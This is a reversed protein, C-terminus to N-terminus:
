YNSERRGDRETLYDDLTKMEFDQEDEGGYWERLRREFLGNCLVMANRRHRMQRIADSIRMARHRHLYTAVALGARNLGAHCHWYTPEHAAHTHVADVFGELLRREPMHDPDLVDLLPFSFLTRGRPSGSPWSDCMNIIVRAPVDDYRRPLEGMYLPVPTESLLNHNLPAGIM